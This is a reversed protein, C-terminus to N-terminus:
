VKSAWIRIESALAEPTEMTAFHGGRPLEAYHVLDHGQEVYARPLRPHRPDNLSVFGTPVEIRRGEPMARSGERATGKYIWTSTTFTGTMAYLMVSTVLRDMGFVDVITNDGLDAWDHFRELIWAAQAVPSDVMAYALSQVKTSQLHAYAGLRQEHDASAKQQEEDPAGHLVQDVFIGRLGAAHDLAMWPAILSGWDTGAVLYEDYGLVEHMLTAYQKAIARAGLPARPRSSFGFGPLSPIVLDFRDALADIMPWYQYHSGPWGHALLLPRPKDRGGVVHVFHLTQGGDIEVTFQPHRNLEQQAADVDHRELWHACFRKLFAPDCGEDWTAETPFIPFRYDRIRQRLVSLERASWAVEFPRLASM